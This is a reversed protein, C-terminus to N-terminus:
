LNDCFYEKFLQNLPPARKRSTITVLVMAGGCEPCRFIVEKTILNDPPIFKAKLLLSVLNFIKKNKPHLFGFYRVKQLGKPLVHQLFRRMFELVPLHMTLYKKTQNDKYRFTVIGNKCSLINNNSIAIRYVYRALYKIAPLGDGVSECDVVWDIKWVYAPVLRILGAKILAEKFIRRFIRSLPKEHMLFGDRAYFIQKHDFSIAIGPVIYHIHPHIELTSTWTQLLGVMGIQGGLFRPDKALTKLSNASTQFLIHYIKKQHSRAFRRLEEPITFTVMFYEVPLLLNKQKIIWQDCKDNQCQPCSRNKCPNYTYHVRQCHECYWEHWGLYESRCLIIDRMAKKHSPLMNKEFSHLYERGHQRFIDTLTM